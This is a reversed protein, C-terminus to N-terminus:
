YVGVNQSDRGPIDLAGDQFGIFGKKAHHLVTMFIDGGTAHSPQVHCRRVPAIASFASQCFYNLGARSLGKLRFKDAFIAASHGDQNSGCQELLAPSVADGEGEIQTFLFLGFCLDSRELILEIPFVQRQSILDVASLHELFNDTGGLRQLRDKRPDGFHRGVSEVTSMVPSVPVPLSSMARATWLRDCLAPRAKTLTFQAASAGM